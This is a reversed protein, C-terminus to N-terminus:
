DAVGFLAAGLLLGLLSVIVSTAFSLAWGPPLRGSSGAAFLDSRYRLAAAASAAAGLLVFSVGLAVASGAPARAASHAVGQGADSMVFRTVVFGLGFLALSTRVWALLTREAAWRLRLEDDSETHSPSDM